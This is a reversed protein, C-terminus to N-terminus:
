PTESYAELILPQGNAGLLAWGQADCGFIRYKQAPQPADMLSYIVAGRCDRSVPVRVFLWHTAPQDFPDWAAVLDLYAAGGPDFPNTAKKWYKGAVAAQKLAQFSAPYRQHNDYYTEVMVQLASMNARLHTHKARDAAGAFSATPQTLMFLLVGAGFLLLAFLFMELMQRLLPGLFRDPRESVMQTGSALDYFTRGRWREPDTQGGWLWALLDPWLILGVAAWFALKLLLRLGRRTPSAPEGAVTVLELGLQQAPTRGRSRWLVFALYLAALLGAFGVNGEIVFPVIGVLVWFLFTLVYLGGLLRATETSQHLRHLPASM